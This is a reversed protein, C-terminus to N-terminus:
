ANFVTHMILLLLSLVATINLLKPVSWSRINKLIGLPV